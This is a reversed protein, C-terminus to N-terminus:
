SNDKGKSWNSLMGKFNNISTRIRNGVQSSLSPQGPQSVGQGQGPATVFRYWPVKNGSIQDEIGVQSGMSYIFNNSNSYGTVYENDGWFV